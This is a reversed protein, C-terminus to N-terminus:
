KVPTQVLQIGPKFIGTDIYFKLFLKVFAYHFLDMGSYYREITITNYFKGIRFNFSHKIELLYKMNIFKFINIRFQYFKKFINFRSILSANIHLDIMFKQAQCDM